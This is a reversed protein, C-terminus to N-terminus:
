AVGSLTAPAAAVVGRVLAVLQDEQVPKAVFRSAGLQRALSEHKSGSRSTLVVVPLHRTAPRRRIDQLLEYGNLRPMELDTLVLDVTTADLRDLADIGDSATHVEFGGRELMGAVARRVSVSDDVLLVRQRAPGQEPETPAAVMTETTVPASDGQYALLAPPDLVLVVEGAASIMAGGYPGSGELFGGLSKIVAEERGLLGDVAIGFRREGAAVVLLPRMAGQPTRPMGLLDELGFAALLEGDPSRIRGTGDAAILDGPVERVERVLSLPLAFTRGASRVLLADTIAVTLPLQIQFRTGEGLVSAVRIQGRLRSLGTRVADLGVGRGAATTVESATSFGPQFILEITEAETLEAAAEAALFGRAVATARIVAPDLGRGDDQVEVLMMPGQQEARVRITGVPAKGLAIREDGPEIAHVLANQVLHLLCDALEHVARSDMEVTGGLTEIAVQKGLTLAQERVQRELRIYLPSLPLMRARTVEGRMARTLQQLTSTEETLGLIAGQMQQQVESLDASIESARRAFLNFDDYRDFELESFVESLDTMRLRPAPEDGLGGPVGGKGMRTFEHRQEFERVAGTMRGRAFTLDRSLGTLYELRRELRARTLVLEGVANMLRELRDLRVRVTPVPAADAIPAASDAPRSAPVDSLPVPEHESRLPAAGGTLGGLARALREELDQPPKGATALVLTRLGGAGYFLLELTTGDLPAVADRIPVLRDELEHAVDGVPDCGVIYAAGKLTHVARFLRDVQEESQGERELQLLADDIADLHDSAEPLFYELAEQNDRRFQEVGAIMRTVRPDVERPAAELHGHRTALASLAGRDDDSGIASVSDLLSSLLALHDDLADARAEDMLGAVTGGALRELHLALAVIHSLGHMSAAGKLKHAGIALGDLEDATLGGAERLRPPLAQFAEVTDWAELLFVSQLYASDDSM